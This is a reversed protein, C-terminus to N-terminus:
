PLGEGVARGLRGEAHSEERDGVAHVVIVPEGLVEARVEDKGLRQGRQLGNPVVEQYDGAEGVVLRPRIAVAGAVVGPRAGREEGAALRPLRVALVDARADRDVLERRLLDAAPRLQRRDLQAALLA